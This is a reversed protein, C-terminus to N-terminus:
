RELDLVDTRTLVDIRTFSGLMPRKLRDRRDSTYEKLLATSLPDDVPDLFFTQENFAQNDYDRSRLEKLTSESFHDQLGLEKIGQLTLGHDMIENKIPAMNLEISYSLDQKTENEGNSNQNPRTEKLLSNLIDQQYAAMVKSKQQDTLPLADADIQGADQGKYFEVNRGDGGQKSLLPQYYATLLPSRLLTKWNEAGNVEYTRHIKKGNKTVYILNLRILNVADSRNPACFPFYAGQKFHDIASQDLKLVTEFDAKDNNSDLVLPTYMQGSPNTIIVKSYNNVDHPYRTVGFVDFSTATFFLVLTLLTIVYSKLGALLTRVGRGVIMESVIHALLSSFVLGFICMWLTSLISNFIACFILGASVGSLWRLFYYIPRKNSLQEARESPRKQYMRISITILVASFILWYFWPLGGTFSNVLPSLLSSLIRAAPLGMFANYEIGPLTSSILQFAITIGIPWLLLLDVASAVGDFTSGLNIFCFLFIASIAILALATNLVTTSFTLSYPAFSGTDYQNTVTAAAYAVQFPRLLIVTLIINLFHPVLVTTMIGCYKSILLVERKIPLSHWLDIAVSNNMYGMVRVMLIVIFLSVVCLILSVHITSIISEMHPPPKVTMDYKLYGRNLILIFPQALFEITFLLIALAYNEKLTQLFISMGRHLTRPRPRSPGQTPQATTLRDPWSTASIM